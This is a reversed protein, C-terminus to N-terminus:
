FFTKTAGCEAEIEGVKAQHDAFSHPACPPGLNGPYFCTNIPLPNAQNGLSFM